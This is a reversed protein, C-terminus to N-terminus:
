FKAKPMATGFHLRLSNGHANSEEQYVKSFMPSNMRSYLMGIM